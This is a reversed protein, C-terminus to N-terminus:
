KRKLLTLIWILLLAGGLILSFKIKQLNMTEATLGGNAIKRLSEAHIDLDGGHEPCARHFIGAVQIRDGTTKYSGEYNIDKLLPASVWIGVANPGDSVNVWSHEGREMIDGIVEGEYTVTKGDYAKANKILDTSSIGEAFCLVPLLGYVAFFVLFLLPFAKRLM